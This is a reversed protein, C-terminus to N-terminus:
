HTLELQPNASCINGRKNPPTKTAPKKNPLGPLSANIGFVHISFKTPPFLKHDFKNAETTPAKIYKAVRVSIGIKCPSNPAPMPLPGAKARKSAPGAKLRGFINTILLM